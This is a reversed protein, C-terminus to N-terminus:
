TIRVGMVCVDDIQEHDGIWNTFEEEILTNQEDIPKDSISLLFNKFKGSLYKKGKEGGFQDPFGDSYIYLMDGKAVQIEKNTFPLKKGTHLGVPQSDGKLQNTQNKSIHILPNYAGSYQVTGKKPDYKCLAMDMGDKNEGQLGKQDLSKIIQARMKTLVEATDEINNEIIFENLLSTGIMSMFAGPVGHGTCDAVTFYTQGKPSRYVWYFDGSVVDKPKFLIFSEPLVDKIYVASTMLADQIRKAYNISDTIERHSENLEEHQGEIVVKQAKTKRLQVFVFGLSMLVVGVIVLLGTRRQKESKLQEEKALNEAQQIIIEDAHLISDAQKKLQYEKDVEFKYLEEEADMKALSDKTEMYLEHIELAQKYKGLKKNIQWLIISTKKIQILSGIEQALVLGESCNEFAKLFFGQELYVDGLHFYSECMSSKDGLDTSIELTKSYCEVAKSYNGQVSYISGIVGFSNIICEKSDIEQAILLAKNCIKLAEKYNKKRKYISGINNMIIAIGYKDYRTKDIISEQLNLSKTYYELAVSDDGKRTYINGINCLSPVTKMKLGLDEFIRICKSYYEIAKVNDGKRYYVIGIDGLSRAVDELSGQKEDLEICKELFKLANDFDGQAIYVHGIKFYSYSMQKLDDLIKSIQLSNEFFELSKEYNNKEMFLVGQVNLLEAMWKKNNRAEAFDYGMQAFYFASDPNSYLYGDWAIDRMAKLRNTDPQTKDNWVGWLSDLNVEQAKSSLSILLM